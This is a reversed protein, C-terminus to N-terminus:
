VDVRRDFGVFVPEPQLHIRFKEQVASQIKEKLELLEAASAGGRNILALTHKSSIGANGLEFGKNFGAHEILWAAPVKVKDGFEFSPIREFEFQLEEFRSKEVIPNKFFSGASRANPDGDDIVMSKSRRIAIV